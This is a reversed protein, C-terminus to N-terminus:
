STPLNTRPKIYSPLESVPKGGLLRRAIARNHKWNRRKADLRLAERDVRRFERTQPASAGVQNFDAVLLIERRISPSGSGLELALAIERCSTRLARLNSLAAEADGEVVAKEVNLLGIRLTQFDVLVEQGSRSRSLVPAWNRLGGTIRRISQDVLLRRWEADLDAHCDDVSVRRPDTGCPRGDPMASFRDRNDRLWRLPPGERWTPWISDPASDGCSMALAIEVDVVHDVVGGMGASTVGTDLREQNAADVAEFALFGVGVLLLTNLVASLVSHSAWFEALLSSPWDTLLMIVLLAGCLLALGM